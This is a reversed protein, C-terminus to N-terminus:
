ANEEYESDAGSAEKGQSADDEDSGSEEIRSVDPQVEWFSAHSVGDWFYSTNPYFRKRFWQEPMDPESKPRVTVFPLITEPKFAYGPEDVYDAAVKCVSEIAEKTISVHGALDSKDFKGYIEPDSEFIRKAVVQSVSKGPTKNRLLAFTSGLPYSWSKLPVHPWFKSSQSLLYNVAVETSQQKGMVMLNIPNKFVQPWAPHPHCLFRILDEKFDSNNILIYLLREWAKTDTKATTMFMRVWVDEACRQWFESLATNFNAVSAAHRPHSPPSDPIDPLFSGVASQYRRWPKARVVTAYIERIERILTGTDGQPKPKEEDTDSGLLDKLSLASAKATEPSPDLRPRKALDSESEGGLRKKSIDSDKPKPVTKGKPSSKRAHESGNSARKASQSGIGFDLESEDFDTSDPNKKSSNSKTPTSKPKQPVKDTSKGGSKSSDTARVPTSSSSSGKGASSDKSGSDKDSGPQKSPPEPLAFQRPVASPNGPCVTFRDSAEFDSKASDNELIKDDHMRARLASDAASSYSM